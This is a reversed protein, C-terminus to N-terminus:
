ENRHNSHHHCHCGYAGGSRPYGREVRIRVANNHLASRALDLHEPQVVSKRFGPLGSVIRDALDPPIVTDSDRLGEIRTHTDVLAAYLPSCTPCAELHAEVVRATGQPLLGDLYDSFRQATNNPSSLDNGTGPTEGAPVIVARGSKTPWPLSSGCKLCFCTAYHRAEPVEYRGVYEEGTLWEFDDPRVLLSAAFASGTFKRCRSCHCYQFTGANDRVAFTVRQCLCSGTMGNESM